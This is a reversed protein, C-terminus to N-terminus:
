IANSIYALEFAPTAFSDAAIEVTMASKGFAAFHLSSMFAMLAIDGARRSAM